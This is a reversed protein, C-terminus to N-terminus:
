IKIGERLINIGIPFRQKRQWENESYILSGSLEDFKNLFDVEIERIGNIVSKDKTKVIVAFDYDSGIHYDGRARSGFIFIDSINDGFRQRLNSSFFDTRKKILKNM